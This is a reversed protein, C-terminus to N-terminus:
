VKREGGEGGHEVVGAEGNFLADNEVQVLRSGGCWMEVFDGGGGSRLLIM